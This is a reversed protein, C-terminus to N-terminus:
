KWRPNEHDNWEMDEPSPLASDMPVNLDYWITRLADNEPYKEVMTQLRSSAPMLAEYLVGYLDQLYESDERDVSAWLSPRSPKHSNM